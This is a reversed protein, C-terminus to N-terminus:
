VETLQEELPHKDNQPPLMQKRVFHIWERCSSQAGYLRDSTMATVEM